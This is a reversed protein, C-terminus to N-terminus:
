GRPLPAPDSPAARAEERKLYDRRNRRLPWTASIFSLVAWGLSVISAAAFSVEDNREAVVVVSLAAGFMVAVWSAPLTASGRSRKARYAGRLLLLSAALWAVGVMIAAALAAWQAALVLLTVWIAGVVALGFRLRANVDNDRGTSEDMTQRSYRVDAQLQFLLHFGFLLATIWRAPAPFDIVSNGNGAAATAGLVVTLSLFLLALNFVSIAESTRGYKAQTRVALNHNEKILSGVLERKLDLPTAKWKRSWEEESYKAIQGFYIQSTEIKPDGAYSVEFPTGRSGRGPTRLPTALSNILLMVCFIVLVLYVALTVIGLPPLEVPTSFETYRQSLYSPNGLNATAIAAATLFSVGTFLRGIKDDQHKTADLVETYSRRLLELRADVDALDRSQTRRVDSFTDGTQRIGDASMSGVYIGRSALNCVLAGPGNM